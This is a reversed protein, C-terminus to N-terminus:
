LSHIINIETTEALLTKLAEQMEVYSDYFKDSLYDYCADKNDSELHKFEEHFSQEIARLSILLNLVNGNIVSYATEHSSTSTSTVISQKQELKLNKPMTTSIQTIYIFFATRKGTERWLVSNDCLYM